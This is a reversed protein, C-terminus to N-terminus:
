SPTGRLSLAFGADHHFDPKVGPHALAWYGLAGDADELVASLALEYDCHRPDLAADALSVQARLRLTTPSQEIEIVPASGVDLPRM